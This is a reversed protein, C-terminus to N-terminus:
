RTLTPYTSSNGDKPSDILEQIGIRSIDEIAKLINDTHEM